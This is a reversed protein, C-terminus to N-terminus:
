IRKENRKKMRSKEDIVSKKTIFCADALEQDTIKLKGSERLNLLVIIVRLRNKRALNRSAIAKEKLTRQVEVSNQLRKITEKQSIFGAISNM